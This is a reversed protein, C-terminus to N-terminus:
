SAAPRAQEALPETDTRRALAMKVLSGLAESDAPWKRMFEKAGAKVVDIAIQPDDHGSVVIVPVGPLAAVVAEVAETGQADPLTLDLLICDPRWKTILALADRLLPVSGVKYDPIGIDSLMTMIIRAHLPSDEVILIAPPITRLSDMSDGAM